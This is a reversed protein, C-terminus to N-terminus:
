SVTGLTDFRSDQWEGTDLITRLIQVADWTDTFRTYLAPFGFRLRDPPRFDGIVGRAILATMIRRGHPHRLVIQASHRPVPPQVAFEPCTQAVLAAFAAVLATSKAEAVRMDVGAFTAVGAALAAMALIPPTGALLRRVGPAPTYAAAFDFPAVHGMWGNIPPHFGARHRAAVYAFAPAGPGGNLYKYGCGIAFDAGDRDLHLDLAGASHSLDWLILAGAAHAATSLAAMDHVEGSAYHAHTLVLLATGQDLAAAIEARRVARIEADALTALGELIYRDTPFDETECVIVRRGPRMGLAAAALKFLNVSVSDCAIVSDPAAGIIPAIAAGISAPLDIWAEDNWSRILGQGWQRTVADAIAAPTAAPLPGLSNGDLYLINEPLAFRDRCPALSDAADAAALSQRTIPSHPM